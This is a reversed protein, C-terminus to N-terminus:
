LAKLPAKEFHLLYLQELRSDVAEQESVYKRVAEKGLGVTLYLLRRSPIEISHFQTKAGHHEECDFRREQKQCLGHRKPVCVETPHKCVHM